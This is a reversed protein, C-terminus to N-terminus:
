QPMLTNKKLEEHKSTLKHKRLNCKMVTCGCDCEVKQESDTLIRERNKIYWESSRQKQKEKNVPDQNYHKNYETMYDPHIDKWEKVTRTPIRKNVCNPTNEIWYRERVELDYRCDCPYNEVLMIVCDDYKALEYSSVYGCKKNNTWRKFMKNHDTLRQSLLRQTTSGIYCDDTQFSVLKYIRGNTADGQRPM